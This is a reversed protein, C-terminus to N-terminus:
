KGIEKYNEPLALEAFCSVSLHKEWDKPKAFSDLRDGERSLEGHTDICSVVLGIKVGREKCQARVGRIHGSPDTIHPDALPIGGVILKDKIIWSWHKATPHPPETEFDQISNNNNVNNYGSSFSDGTPSGDPSLTAFKMGKGVRGFFSSVSEKMTSAFTPGGKSSPLQSKMAQLGEELFKEYRDNLISLWLEEAETLPNGDPESQRKLLSNRWNEDDRSLGSM